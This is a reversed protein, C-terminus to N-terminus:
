PASAKEDASARSHRVAAALRKLPYWVFGVIAFVLAGVFAVATGVVSLGAGPGIYADAVAAHALEAAVTLLVITIKM